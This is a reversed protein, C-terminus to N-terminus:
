ILEIQTKLLLEVRGQATGGTAIDFISRATSTSAALLHRDVDIEANTEIRSTGSVTTDARGIRQSTTVSGKRLVEIMARRSQNKLRFGSLKGKGTLDIRSRKDEAKLPAPWSENLQLGRDPLPPLVEGLLTDLELEHLAAPPLHASRVVRAIGGGPTIEVDLTTSQLNKEKVGNESVEVPEIVFRVQANGEDSQGLVRQDVNLNSLVRDRRTEVASDLSTRADITWRYQVHRGKPFEYRLRVTGSLCAGALLLVLFSSLFNLGFSKSYRRSSTSRGKFVRPWSRARRAFENSM